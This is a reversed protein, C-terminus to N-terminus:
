FPPKGDKWGTPHSITWVPVPAAAPQDLEFLLALLAFAAEVSVEVRLSFGDADLCVEVLTDAADVSAHEAIVAVAKGATTTPIERRVDLGDAKMTLAYSM